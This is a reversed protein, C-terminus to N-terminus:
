GSGVSDVECGEWGTQGLHMRIGDEWRHRLQGLLRKHKAKGGFGQASKQGRLTNYRVRPERNM